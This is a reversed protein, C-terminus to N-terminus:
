EKKLVSKQSTLWAFAEEENYLIKTSNPVIYFPLGKTRMVAQTSQPISFKEKFTRTGFLNPIQKEEDM